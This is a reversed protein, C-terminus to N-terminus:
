TRRILKLPSIGVNHECSTEAAALLQLQIIKVQHQMIQTQGAKLMFLIFVSCIMKIPRLLVLIIRFVLLHKVTSTEMYLYMNMFDM